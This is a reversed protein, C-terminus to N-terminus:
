DGRLAQMPDVGSARRAPIYSAVAAVALMLAPMAVFTSVDLPKVGFLLSELVGKLGLAAVTGIAIGVIAVKAGQAVVMRRVGVAEAGLAMRVAIERTRQAVVYSLVGYLGVAGLILAVAAAIGLMLMTFTLQANARKALGEMTFIRYMPAGPAHEHLLARIENSITEARATKVVYAPSGVAWSRPTPGIMARYVMPDAAPQRFSELRVDEVVGVVNEWGIPSPGAETVMRVKRGIPNQGPWLKEAASRSVLVNTTGGAHDAPTLLRGAVLGIKMTEFYDGGAFNFAVPVAPKGEAAMADSEFRGGMAGEDLPLENVLGVSTVGPLARIREMIGQHFRAFAQADTFSPGSPAVQFTFIDRTDYGLNVRTLQVFSRALLGAGVLLVVAAGTQVVVLVNRAFRGQATGIRGTQRLDSVGGAKSFRIAPALGFALAALLSLGLTVLLSLPKLGVLDINPVGEPAIRVLMPVAAWAILVGAVGGAAALLLAEAMLSRVLGGRTAGMAQRVALDMRRSEARAIFLNAVNACAILFIIGVTGLLIWLPREFDGVLRKELTTIVPQHREIIARYRPTGGFRNPLGAAITKLQGSLDEPEVGPKMRAILNFNFAGPKISAEDAISARAWISTRADPFRFDAPMVGIVERQSGAAEFSKGIVSRDGGFWEQWLAHSILMVNARKKDDDANPLRGLQPQVGLTPFLSSSSAILFLRDVREATRATAQATQFMAINELKDAQDRYAVFFEPAAGVTGQLDSGPASVLITVLRNSNPFPLPNILVADVVSFIATSAGIALALTLVTIGSFGPMRLLRRAAHHLDTGWGEFFGKMHGRRNEEVTFRGAFSLAERWYWLRAHRPGIESRKYQYVEDLESTIHERVDIPLARQLLRRALRPPQQASTM